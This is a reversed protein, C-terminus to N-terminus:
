VNRHGGSRIMEAVAEQWHNRRQRPVLFSEVLQGRERLDQIKEEIHADMEVREADRIKRAKHRKFWGFMM